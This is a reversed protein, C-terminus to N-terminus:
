RFRDNSESNSAWSSCAYDVMFDLLITLDFSYSGCLGSVGSKAEGFFERLENESASVTMKMFLTWPNRQSKRTTPTRVGTNETTPSKSDGENEKTIDPTSVEPIPTSKGSQSLQPPVQLPESVDNENNPERDAREKERKDRKDKKKVKEREVKESSSPSPATNAKAINLTDKDKSLDKGNAPPSSPTSPKSDIHPPVSRESSNSALGKLSTNAPHTLLASTNSNPTPAMTSPTSSRRYSYNFGIPWQM